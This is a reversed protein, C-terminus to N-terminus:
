NTCSVNGRSVFPFSYLDCTRNIKKKKNSLVRTYRCIDKVFYNLIILYRLSKLGVQLLPESCFIFFKTMMM